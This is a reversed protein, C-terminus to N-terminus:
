VQAGIPLIFIGLLVKKIYVLDNADSNGDFNIDSMNGDASKKMMSIYDLINAVGDGTVDCITECYNKNSFFTPNDDKEDTVKDGDYDAFVSNKGNNYLTFKNGNHNFLVKPAIASNFAVGSESENELIIISASGVSKITQPKTGNLIVTGDTIFSNNIEINGGVALIADAKNMELQYISLNGGVTFSGNNDIYTASSSSKGIVNGTVTLDGNNSLRKGGNVILDGDIVEKGGDPITRDYEITVNGRVNIATEIDARIRVDHFYSEGDFTVNESNIITRGSAPNGNLDYHGSVYIESYSIGHPNTVTINHARLDKVTQYAATGNFIVTGDTINSNIIGEINGGVALTADAKSMNITHISLYWGITLNGDNNIVACSNLSGRVAGEVTLNGSNNLISSSYYLELDGGITFNGSNNIRFYGEYDHVRYTVRLTGENNIIGWEVHIDGVIIVTENKPVNLSSLLKLSGWFEGDTCYLKGKEIKDSANVLATDEKIEWWDHHIRNRDAKPINSITSRIDNMVNGYLDYNSSYRSQLANITNLDSQVVALPETKQLGLDTIAKLALILNKHALIDSATFQEEEFKNDFAYVVQQMGSVYDTLVMQVMIENLSPTNPFVIMASIEFALGVLAVVSAYEGLVSDVIKDVVAEGLKDLMGGTIYNDYVYGGFDSNIDYYLSRMGEYFTGSKTTTNDLIDAIINLRADELMTALMITKGLKIMDGGISAIGSATKINPILESLIDSLHSSTLESLVGSKELYDMAKELIEADPLETGELESFEEYVECLKIVKDGFDTVANAGEVPGSNLVNQIFLENAIEIADDKVYNAGFTGSLFMKVFDIVNAPNNELVTKVETDTFADSNLYHDLAVYMIELTDDTYNDLVASKSIYSPYAYYIDSLYIYDSKQEASAVFPLGVFAIVFCLLTALLKKLKKM